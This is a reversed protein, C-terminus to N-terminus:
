NIWQRGDCPSRREISVQAPLTIISRRQQRRRDIRCEFKRTREPSVLSTTVLSLADPGKNSTQARIIASENVFRQCENLVSVAMETTPRVENKNAACDVGESRLDAM